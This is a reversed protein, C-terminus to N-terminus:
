KSLIYKDCGKHVFYALATGIIFVLSYHLYCGYNLSSAYVKPFLSMLIAGLTGNFLYSELSINGFFDFLNRLFNGCYNFSWCLIVVFPLVIFGPWYGFHLFKMAVILIVPVALMYVLSVKKNDKALPALMFGILFAPLHNMTFKLNNVVNDVISNGFSMDLSVLAVVIAVLVLYYLIKNNIRRCIAYHLPTVAYLPILMAVFWAGNHSLWFNVTSLNLLAHGITEKGLLILCVYVASMIILYPVLIRKYRRKYWSSLVGGRLSNDAGAKNLSYWLGLGSVLLFIDVGVSALGCLSDLWGPMLVGNGASHGFIVLLTAVGM